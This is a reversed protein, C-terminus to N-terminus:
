DVLLGAVWSGGGGVEAMVEVEGGGRKEPNVDEQGGITRLLLDVAAIIPHLPWLPELSAPV